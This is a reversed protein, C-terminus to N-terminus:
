EECHVTLPNLSTPNGVMKTAVFLRRGLDTEGPHSTGALDNLM